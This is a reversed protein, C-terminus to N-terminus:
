EEKTSKYRAAIYGLLTCSGMVACLVFIDKASNFDFYFLTLTEISVFIILFIVKM